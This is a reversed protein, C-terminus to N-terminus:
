PTCSPPEGALWLHGKSRIMPVTPVPGHLLLMGSHETQTGRRERQANPWKLDDEVTATAMVALLSVQKLYHSLDWRILKVSSKKKNTSPMGGLWM